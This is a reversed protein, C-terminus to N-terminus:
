LMLIVTFDSVQIDTAEFNVNKSIEDHEKWKGNQVVVMKHSVLDCSMTM